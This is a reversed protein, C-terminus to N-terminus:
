QATGAHSTRSRRTSCAISRARRLCDRQSVARIGRDRRDGRDLHSYRHDHRGHKRRDQFGPCEPSCSLFQPPRATWRGFRRAASHHSPSHGNMESWTMLSCLIPSGTPCNSGGTPAPVARV